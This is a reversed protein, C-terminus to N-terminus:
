ASQDSRTETQMRVKLKALEEDLQTDDELSAIEESLTRSSLDYAEIEGEMEDLRREYVDFKDFASDVDVQSLQRKVKLRSKATKGRLILAKQRAKAQKLKEQLQATDGKLKSIARDLETSEHQLQDIVEDLRGKEKLAAKALDDRGRSVALEAKSEWTEAETRLRRMRKDVDKRDAIYRASMSRVEVLTDQMEQSIMRIMKEPDEAEELISNINANIIDSLRNFVGM